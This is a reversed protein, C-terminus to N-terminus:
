RCHEMPLGMYVATGQAAAVCTNQYITGDCGCVPVNVNACDKAAPMNACFGASSTGCDSRPFYCFRDPGCAGLDDKTCSGTKPCQM